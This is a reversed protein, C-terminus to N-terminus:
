LYLFGGVSVGAVWLGSGPAASGGTLAPFTFFPDIDLVPGDKGAIAYGAFIGLPIAVSAGPTSFDGIVFGTAAGVHLPETIDYLASVPIQLGTANASVSTTGFGGLPVGSMSAFTIPLFAGTDIRLSELAHIRVPVGPAVVVGSFGQATILNVDVSAGIEFMEKKLFRYTAGVGPGPNDIGGLLGTSQGYHFGGGGAIQLPLVQARVTLDDTIGFAAGVSANFFASGPLHPVDLDVEGSLVMKPLTIPREAEAVPYRGEAKKEEKGGKAEGKAEPEEASAVSAFTFVALASLAVPLALIRGLRLNV